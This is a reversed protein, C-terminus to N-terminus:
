YGPPRRRQYSCLGVGCSGRLRNQNRRSHPLLKEKKCYPTLDSGELFEMAMYAMGQHEGVDYISLISPHALKGIAEAEMFFQKKHQFSDKTETDVYRLTKIAVNRNILPDRGLYVTGM